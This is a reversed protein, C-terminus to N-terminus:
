TVDCFAPTFQLIAISPSIGFCIRSTPVWTLADLLVPRCFANGDAIPLTWGLILRWLV